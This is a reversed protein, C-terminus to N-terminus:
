VNSFCCFSTPTAVQKLLRRLRSYEVCVKDLPPPGLLEPQPSSNKFPDHSQSLQALWLQITELMCCITDEDTFQERIAVRLTSATMPYQICLSLFAPLSPIVQISDVQM